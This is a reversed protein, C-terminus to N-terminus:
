AGTSGALGTLAMALVVTLVLRLAAVLLVRIYLRAHRGAAADYRRLEWDLAEAALILLLDVSAEYLLGVAGGVLASNLLVGGDHRVLKGHYLRKSNGVVM